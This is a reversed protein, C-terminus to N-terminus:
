AAETVRGRRRRRAADVMEDVREQHRRLTADPLEGHERRLRTRTAKIGADLLYRLFESQSMDVHEAWANIAAATDPQEMVVLQATYRSVPAM